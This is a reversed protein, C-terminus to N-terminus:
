ISQVVVKKKYINKVECDYYGDTPKEEREAECGSCKYHPKLSDATWSAGTEFWIHPPCKHNGQYHDPGIEEWIITLSKGRRKKLVSSRYLAQWDIPLKYCLLVEEYVKVSDESKKVIIKKRDKLLYGKKPLKKSKANCVVCYYYHDVMEILWNIEEYEEHESWIHPPCKHDTETQRYINPASKELRSTVRFERLKNAM